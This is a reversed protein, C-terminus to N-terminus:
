VTFYQRLTERLNGNRDDYRSGGVVRLQHTVLHNRNGFAELLWDLGEELDVAESVIKYRTEGDPAALAEETPIAVKGSESQCTYMSLRAGSSHLCCRVGNRQTSVYAYRTGPRFTKYIKHELRPAYEFV